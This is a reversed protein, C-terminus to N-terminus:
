SIHARLRKQPHTLSILPQEKKKARQVLFVRYSPLNRHVDRDDTKQEVHEGVVCMFRRTKVANIHMRLRYEASAAKAINHRFWFSQFRLFSTVLAVIDHAVRCFSQARIVSGSKVVEFVEQEVPIKLKCECSQPKCMKSWLHYYFPSENRRSLTVFYSQTPM